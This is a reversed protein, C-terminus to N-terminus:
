EALAGLAIEQIDKFLSQVASIRRSTEEDHDEQTSLRRECDSILKLLIQVLLKKLKDAYVLGDTIGDIFVKLRRSESPASEQLTALAIETRFSMGSKNVTYEGYYGCSKLYEVHLPRFLPIIFDSIDIYNWKNKPLTFGYECLLFENSHPGYSFYLEQGPRYKSSTIVQFGLSDIKIGCEDNNLHNLFDVYPALTFNDSADKAQPIEMYLCRSNVCMWAWLFDNRSIYAAVLPVKQQVVMYDKEFRAVVAEAHKRAPRPLMRWLADCHAVGLVKWVIPALGLEGIEPQMDIFPKWFSLSGRSRELVLFMALLQFSLLELLTSLSMQSYLKGVVDSIPPPVYINMYHPESLHIDSNHRTIHAAVTTVNILLLPPIRVLCESSEISQAAYLGRGSKESHKVLLKPSIYACNSPKATNHANNPSNKYPNNIWQILREVREDFNIM